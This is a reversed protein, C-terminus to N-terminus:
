NVSQHNWEYIGAVLAALADEQHRYYTARSFGLLGCVTQIPQGHEYRLEVLRRLRYPLAKVAVQVELRSVMRDTLRRGTTDPRSSALQMPEGAAFEGTLYHQLDRRPDPEKGYRTRKATCAEVSGLAGSM